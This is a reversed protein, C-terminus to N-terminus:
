KKRTLVYVYNSKAIETTWLWGVGPESGKNPDISFVSVLIKKM